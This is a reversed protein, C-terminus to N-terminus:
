TLPKPKSSCLVKCKCVEKDVIFGPSVMISVYPPGSNIVRKNSNVSLPAVVVEEMYMPNFKSGPAIRFITVAAPGFAFALHHVLWVAKVAKYFATIVSVPMNTEGLKGLQSIVIEM